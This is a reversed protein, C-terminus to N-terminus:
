YEYSDFYLKTVITVVLPFEEDNYITLENHTFLKTNITM